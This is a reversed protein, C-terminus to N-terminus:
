QGIGAWIDFPLCFWREDHIGWFREREKKMAEAYVSAEERTMVGEVMEIIKEVVETPLRVDLNEETAKEMWEKQQPPINLTSPICEPDVGDNEVPSLDPDVLLFSLITASGEKTPDELTAETLRHQYLNPFAISFGAQLQVSGLYQNAPSFNTLGWTRVTAGEDGPVFKNPSCMAMRFEISPPHINVTSLCHFVCAVIRENKMGEVHWTTGTFPTPSDPKLSIDTARVIVKITTGRLSVTYKRYDIGGPYGSEPIDPVELPRQLAWQRVEREYNLWGEEDDSYEPEEPENWETYRCHGKIRQHLPNNRHLDALVHEFLPISRTLCDEILSYLHLRCPDIGNIYSLRSAQHPKNSPSITFPTPIWASKFSTAYTHESPTAPKCIPTLDGDTNYRHGGDEEQRLISSLESFLLLQLEPPILSTSEWIRDFCSVHWGVSPSRLAAYGSLEDLVYEVQKQNLSISTEGIPSQILFPKDVFDNLWGQRFEPESYHNFWNNTSRIKASLSCMALEILTRPKEGVGYLFSTGDWFPHLYGRSKPIGPLSYVPATLTTKVRIPELM